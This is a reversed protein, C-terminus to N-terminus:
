HAPISLDTPRPRLFAQPRCRAPRIMYATKASRTAGPPSRSQGPAALHSLVADRFPTSLGERALLRVYEDVAGLVSFGRRGLFWTPRQQALLLSLVQRYALASQEM